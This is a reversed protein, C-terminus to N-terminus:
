ARPLRDRAALWRRGAADAARSVIDMPDTRYVVPGFVTMAVILFLLGTGFLAAKNRRFITWGEAFPSQAAVSVVAESM